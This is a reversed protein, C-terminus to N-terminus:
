VVHDEKRGEQRAEQYLFLQPASPLLSTPSSCTTNRTLLSSAHPGPCSIQIAGRKSSTISTGSLLNCSYQFPLEPYASVSTGFKIKYICKNQETNTQKDVCVGPLQPRPSKARQGKEEPRTRLLLAPLGKM